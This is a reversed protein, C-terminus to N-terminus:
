GTILVLEIRIFINNSSIILLESNIQHYNYKIRAKTKCKVKMSFKCGDKKKGLSCVLIFGFRGDEFTTFKTTDKVRCQFYDPGIKTFFLASNKRPGPGVFYLYPAHLTGSLNNELELLPPPESFVM